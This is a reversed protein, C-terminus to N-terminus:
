NSASARPRDRLGPGGDPGGDGRLAPYRRQQPEDGRLGVDACLRRLRGDVQPERADRPADGPQQQVRGCLGAPCALSAWFAQLPVRAVFVVWAQYVLGVHLALGLIVVGVYVALGSARCLGQTGVTQAMVAFVALPLLAVVWGLMLELARLGGAM